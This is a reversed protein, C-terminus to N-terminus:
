YLLFQLLIVGLVVLVMLFLIKIGLGASEKLEQRVEVSHQEVEEDSQKVIGLLHDDINNSIFYSIIGTIVSPIFFIFWVCIASFYHSFYYNDEFYSLMRSIFEPVDYHLGWILFPLIYLSFFLFGLCLVLCIIGVIYLKNNENYRDYEM